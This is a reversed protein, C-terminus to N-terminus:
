TEFAFNIFHTFYPITEDVSLGQSWAYLKVAEEDWDDDSFVVESLKDHRDSFQRSTVGTASYVDEREKELGYLRRMKAVKSRARQSRRSSQTLTSMLQSSPHLSVASSPPPAPSRVQTIASLQKHQVDECHPIQMLLRMEQKLRDSLIGSEAYDMIDYMITTRSLNKLSLRRWCNDRGGLHAPTEDLHSIYQMYDKLTAVDVVDTIGHKQYELEDCILQEYYTRHGMLRCADGAAETSTNILRRGDIYRNGYGSSRHFIKFVLFPPFESGAFRFRVKCQMSRDRLLEAELPCVKKLIGYTASSEAARAAHKLLKFIKRNRYYRWIRQIRIAAEGVEIMPTVDLQGHKVNEKIQLSEISFTTPLSITISSNSMCSLAM